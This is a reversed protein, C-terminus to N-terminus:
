NRGQTKAQLAAQLVTKINPDDPSLREALRLEEIAEDLHGNIHALVSGLNAHLAANEPMLESAKRVSAVAGQRPGSEILVRALNKLGPASRPDLEALKGFEEAAAHYRSLLLDTTALAYHIRIDAPNFDIARALSDVAQPLLGMGILEYGSAAFYQFLPQTSPDAKAETWLRTLENQSETTLGRAGTRTDFTRMARLCALATPDFDTGPPLHMLSRADPSHWAGFMHGLLHALNAVNQPESRTPDDFVLVRGDFPVVLGPEPAAPDAGTFGLFLWNGDSQAGILSRRREEQTVADPAWESTGTLELRVNCDTDLIHSVAQIRSAALDRWNTHQRFGPDGAVRM